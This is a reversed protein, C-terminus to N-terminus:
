RGAAAFRSDTASRAADLTAFTRGGAPFENRCVAAWLRGDVSNPDVPYELVRAGAAGVLFRGDNYLESGDQNYTRANEFMLHIDEGM